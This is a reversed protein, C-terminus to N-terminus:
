KNNEESDGSKKANETTLPDIKDLGEAFMDIMVPKFTEDEFVTPDSIAINLYYLLKQISYTAQLNNSLLLTVVETVYDYQFQELTNDKLLKQLKESQNTAEEISQIKSQKAIEEYRNFSKMSNEVFKIPSILNNFYNKWSPFSKLAEKLEELTESDTNKFSNVLEDLVIVDQGQLYGVPVGFFDALKQWTALKPERENREYKSLTDYSVHLGAKALQENLQAITLGEKKRLERIRNQM